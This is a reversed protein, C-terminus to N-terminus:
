SSKRPVFFPGKRSTGVPPYLRVVVSAKHDIIRDCRETTRELPARRYGSRSRRTRRGRSPWRPCTSWYGRCLEASSARPARQRKSRGFRGPRPLFSCLSHTHPAPPSTHNLSLNKPLSVVAASLRSTRSSRHPVDTLNERDEPSRNPGPFCHAAAEHPFEENRGDEAKPYKRPRELM